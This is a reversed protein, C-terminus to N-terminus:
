RGYPLKATQEIHTLRNYKATNEGHIPAGAAIQGCGAGVALDAIFDDTTEGAHHSLLPAYGSSRCYALTELTETVTGAQAPTLLVANGIKDDKAKAILAPDTGFIRGGIVQVQRGIRDTLATWGERDREALGDIVACLPFERVLMAYCDVLEMSTLRQGAITYRGDARRLADAAPRIAIAVSDSGARYGADAIAATLIGLAQEVLHVDPAHGGLEGLAPAHGAQALRAGVARHIRAGALVAAREDRAGLPVVMLERFALLGESPESDKGEIMTLFPVPMSARAPDPALSRWLEEDRAFSRAAALSVGLVTGAAPQEEVESAGLGTLASDLDAQDTFVRSLLLDRIQGEVQALTTRVDRRPRRTRIRDAPDTAPHSDTFVMSPVTSRGLTGSRGDRLGIEVTPRGRADLIEWAHVDSIHLSM